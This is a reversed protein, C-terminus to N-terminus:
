RTVRFYQDGQLVIDFWGNDDIDYFIIEYEGDKDADIMLRFAKDNGKLWFYAIVNSENFYSIQLALKNDDIRVTWRNTEANINDQKVFQLTSTCATLFLLLAIVVGKLIKNM